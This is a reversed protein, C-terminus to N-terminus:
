EKDIFTTKGSGNQGLLAVIEGPNVELSVNRLISTGQISFSINNAQLMTM